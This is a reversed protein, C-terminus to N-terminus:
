DLESIKQDSIKPWNLGGKLIMLMKKVLMRFLDLGTKFQELENKIGCCLLYTDNEGNEIM